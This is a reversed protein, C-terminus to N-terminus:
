MSPTAVNGSSAGHPPTSMKQKGLFTDGNWNIYQRSNSRGLRLCVCELTRHRGCNSLGLAQRAGRVMGYIEAEGSPLALTAQNTGWSKIVHGGYM